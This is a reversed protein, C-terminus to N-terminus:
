SRRETARHIDKLYRETICHRAEFSEDLAAMAEDATDYFGVLIDDSYAAWGGDLRQVIDCPNDGEAILKLVGVVAPYSHRHWIRSPPYNVGGGVPSLRRATASSM